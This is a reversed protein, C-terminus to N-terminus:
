NGHKLNLEEGTLAFYLNQFQHVFKCSALFCVMEKDQNWAWVDNDHNTLVQIENLTGSDKGIFFTFNEKCGFKILWEETLPIPECFNLSGNVFTHECMPTPKIGHSGHRMLIWNGIRLESAKM